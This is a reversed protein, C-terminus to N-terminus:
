GTSHLSVFYCGAAVAPNIGDDVSFLHRGDISIFGDRVEPAGCTGFSVAATIFGHKPCVSL